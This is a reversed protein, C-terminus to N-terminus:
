NLTPVRLSKITMHKFQFPPWLNGFVLPLNLLRGEKTKLSPTAEKTEINGGSHTPLWNVAGQLAFMAPDQHMDQQILDNLLHLSSTLVPGFDLLSLNPDQELWPGHVCM